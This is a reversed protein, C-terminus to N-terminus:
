HKLQVKISNFNMVSSMGSLSLMAKITGKHFQFKLSAIFTM